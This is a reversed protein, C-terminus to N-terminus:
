SLATSYPRGRKFAWRPGKVPQQILDFWGIPSTETLGPPSKRGLESLAILRELLARHRKNQLAKQKERKCVRRVPYSVFRAHLPHAYLVPQSGASKPANECFPRNRADCFPWTARFEAFLVYDFDSRAAVWGLVWTAAATCRATTAAVVEGGGRLCTAAAPYHHHRRRRGGVGIDDGGGL